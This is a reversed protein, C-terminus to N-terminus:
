LVALSSGHSFRNLSWPRLGRALWESRAVPARQRLWNWSRGISPAVYDAHRPRRSRMELRHAPFHLLWSCAQGTEPSDLASRRTVEAHTGHQRGGHCAVGNPQLQTENKHSVDINLNGKRTRLVSQRSVAASTGDCRVVLSHNCNKAKHM